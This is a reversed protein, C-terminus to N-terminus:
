VSVLTKSDTLLCWSEIEKNYIRRLGGTQLYDCFTVSVHLLNVANLSHYICMDEYVTTQKTKMTM